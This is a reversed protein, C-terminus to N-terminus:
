VTYLVNINHFITCTTDEEDKSLTIKAWYNRIRERSDESRPIIGRWIRFKKRLTSADFAVEGTDQYENTVQITNIPLGTQTTTTYTDGQLVKSLYSDSAFELTNFVKTITPNDNSIFSFDFSKYTNFYYNYEDSDSPWLEWLALQSNSDINIGLTKGAYGVMVTGGYSMFSTFANLFSSYCFADRITGDSNIGPIYYLDSHKLDYFLQMANIATNETQFSWSNNTANQKFWFTVQHDVALDKIPEGGVLQYSTCNNNDIFILGQPTNLIGFKDQCGVRNSYNQYGNVVQQNTIELPVGEQSQVFAQTNFILQQIAREQFAYLVNNQDAIATVKGYKNDLDLTSSMHLSTWADHTDAPSKVNSWMVQSQYNNVKYYDEDLINYTFYNNQQSYVTNILNFNTSTININSVLGRNRDYRGDLNVRTECMFSGIEVLQNVDDSTYPYTKLCDYRQYWTDGWEWAVDVDNNGDISVAEGAALWINQQLAEETTGGFKNEVSKQYIECLWLYGEPVSSLSDLFADPSCLIKMAYANAGNTQGKAWFLEAAKLNTYGSSGSAPYNLVRVATSQSSFSYSSDITLYPISEYGWASTHSGLAMTFVAHPTSKYKIRVADKPCVMGSNYDGIKGGDGSEHNYQTYVLTSDYDLNLNSNVTHTTGEDDTYTTSNVYGTVIHYPTYPTAMYDVNGYYTIDGKENHSDKFKLLGIEDQNFCKIESTNLVSKTSVNSYDYDLWHITDSYLINSIIKTKIVATRTGQDAPRVIDNNLSGTRHWLYVLWQRAHHHAYGDTYNTINITDSWDDLISDHFFLGSILQYGGCADGDDDTGVTPATVIGFADPDAQISELDIDIDGYSKSFPIVGVLRIGLNSNNDLLLQVSDDFEIDPSNLTNISSDVYWFNKISVASDNAGLITSVVNLGGCSYALPETTYVKSGYIYSKWTDYDALLEYDHSGVYSGAIDQSQIEAGNTRCSSIEHYHRWEAAAGDLGRNTGHKSVTSMMPRWIWSSFSFPTNNKRAGVQFVTPNVVGQCVIDRDYSHPLVVVGRVKRYGNDYFNAVVDASLTLNFTPLSLIYEDGTTCSPKQTFPMLHDGIFIPESWQGTKYQFQIGLRYYDGTKFTSSNQSLQNTWEYFSSDANQSEYTVTRYDTTISDDLTKFYEKATTDEVEITSAEQRNYTINGLFLVNDKSYICDAIIDNNYLYQLYSSDVDSGTTNTDIFTVTNDEIESLDIDVVQKVVPTGDLSTRLISYIRLYDYKDSEPNEITLKFAVNITTESDGGRDPYSIYELPSVWFINSEQGYKFLYTCAYQIVGASFLGGSTSSLREVSCTEELALDQVFDFPADKYVASYGLYDSIIDTSIYYILYTYSTAFVAQISDITISAIDTLEGGAIYIYNGSYTIYLDTDEPPDTYEYLTNNKITQTTTNGDNDVITLTYIYYQFSYNVTYIDYIGDLTESAVETSVSEKTRYAKISDELTFQYETVYYDGEIGIIASATDTASEVKSISFSTPVLDVVEAYDFTSDSIALYLINTTSTSSKQYYGFYWNTTNFPADDLTTTLETLISTYNEDTAKTTLAGGYTCRGTYTYEINDSTYLWTVSVEITDGESINDILANNVSGYGTNSLRGNFGPPNAASLLGSSTFDDLTVYETINGLDDFSISQLIVSDCEYTIYLGQEAIYNITIDTDTLSTDSITSLTENVLDEGTYNIQYELSESTDGEILLLVLTMTGVSDNLLSSQPYFVTNTDGQITVSYLIVKQYDSLYTNLENVIQIQNENISLNPDSVYSDIASSSTTVTVASSEYTTIDDDAEFSYEFNYVEYDSISISIVELTGWNATLVWENDTRYVSIGYTSTTGLKGVNNYYTFAFQESDADEFNITMLYMTGEVFNESGATLSNAGFAYDGTTLEEPGEYTLLIVGQSSVIRFNLIITDGDSCRSLISNDTDFAICAATATGELDTIITDITDDLTGTLTKTAYQQTAENTDYEAGLLEPKMINIVRPRNIGDVWYVKQILEAECDAIAQIPYQPNFNLLGNMDRYLVKICGALDSDVYSSSFLDTIDIVTDIDLTLLTKLDIRYIIDEDSTLTAGTIDTVTISHKIFLVLYDGVVCHGIYQANKGLSIIERTSKENTISLHSNDDRTTLRINHADWLYEKSQNIPHIDRSLGKFVHSDAHIPSNEAM